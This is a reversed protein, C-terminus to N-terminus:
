HINGAGSRNSKRLRLSVLFFNAFPVITPEPKLFNGTTASCWGNNLNYLKQIPKMMETHLAEDRASFTTPLVTGDPLKIDNVSYAKTKLFDGKLSYILKVWRADSLSLLNPGIRVVKSDYKRHLRRLTHQSEGRWVDVFRWTNTFRALLPGPFSSIRRFFATYLVLVLSALLFTLAAALLM